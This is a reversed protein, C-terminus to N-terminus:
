WSSSNHPSPIIVLCSDAYNKQPSCQKVFLKTDKCGRLHGTRRDTLVGPKWGPFLPEVGRRAVFLDRSPATTARRAWLGFTVPELGTGAVLFLWDPIIPKKQKVGNYLGQFFPIRRFFYNVHRTLYGRHSPIIVLGKPFVKETIEIQDWSDWYYHINRAIEIAENVFM